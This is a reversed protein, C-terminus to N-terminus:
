EFSDPATCSRCATLFQSWINKPMGHENWKVPRPFWNGFRTDLQFWLLSSLKSRNREFFLDFALRLDAFTQLSEAIPLARLNWCPMSSLSSPSPLLLCIKLTQEKTSRRLYSLCFFPSVILVAFDVLRRQIWGSVCTKPSRAPAWKSSSISHLIGLDMRAKKTSKTQLSLYPKPLIYCTQHKKSHFAFGRDKTTIPLLHKLMKWHTPRAPKPVSTCVHCVKAHPTLAKWWWALHAQHKSTNATLQNLDTLVAQRVWLSATNSLELTHASIVVKCM